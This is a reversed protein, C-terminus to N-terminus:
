RKHYQSAKRAKKLGTKKREVIRTDKVKNFMESVFLALIIFRFISSNENFIIRSLRGELIKYIELELIEQIKPFVYFKIIHSIFPKMILSAIVRAQSSFGGGRIIINFIINCNKIYNFFKFFIPLKSSLGMKQSFDELNGIKKSNIFFLISQESVKKIEKPFLIYSVKGFSTKTSSKSFVM